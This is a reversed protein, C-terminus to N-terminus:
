ITSKILLVKTITGPYLFKIVCDGVGSAQIYYLAGLIYEGDFGHLVYASVIVLVM